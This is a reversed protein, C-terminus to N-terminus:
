KSSTQKEPQDDFRTERGTRLVAIRDAVGRVAEQGTHIGFDIVFHRSAGPALKPVRGHEREIRRNRPFNTGPELGTVYGDKEAATNKWQTLYPMEKLSFAMSVARDKAQNQLMILTRDDQDGFLRLCYVQEVFGLQPGAYRDYTKISRAAHDNFPTV